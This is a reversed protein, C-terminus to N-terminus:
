FQKSQLYHHNIILMSTSAAVLLGFGFALLLSVIHSHVFFGIFFLVIVVTAMLKFAIMLNYLCDPMWAMRANLETAKEELDM